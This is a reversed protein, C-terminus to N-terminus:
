VHKQIYHKPLIDTFNEIEAIKVNLIKDQVKFPEKVWPHNQLMM